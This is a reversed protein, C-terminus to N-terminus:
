EQEHLYKYGCRIREPWKAKSEQFNWEPHKGFKKIHRDLEEEEYPKPDMGFPLKMMWLTVIEGSLLVEKLLCHIGYSRLSPNGTMAHLYNGMTGAIGAKAASQGIKTIKNGVQFAYLRGSKDRKVASPITWDIRLHEDQLVISGVPSWMM